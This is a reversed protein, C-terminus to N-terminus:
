GPEPRICRCVRLIFFLAMFTAPRAHSGTAIRLCDRLATSQASKVPPQRAATLAHRPSWGAGVMVGAGGADGEDGPADGEDSIAAGGRGRREVVDLAAVTGVKVASANVGDSHPLARPHLTSATM